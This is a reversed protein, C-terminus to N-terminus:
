FVFCFIVRSYYIQSYYVNSASFTLFLATTLATFKGTWGIALFPTLILAVGAIASALRFAIPSDGFFKVCAALWYFYAPGHYNEHSYRYFGDRFIEQIFHFNVGEDNHLPRIGLDCGRLLTAILLLGFVSILYAHKKNAVM